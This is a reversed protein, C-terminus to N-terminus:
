DRCVGGAGSMLATRNLAETSVYTAKAFRQGIKSAISVANREAVVPQQAKVAFLHGEV